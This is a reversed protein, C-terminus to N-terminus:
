ASRTLVDGAVLRAASGTHRASAVLRLPGGVETEGARARRRDGCPGEEGDLVVVSAAEPSM